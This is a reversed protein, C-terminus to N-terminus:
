SREYMQQIELVCLFDGVVVDGGHYELGGVVNEEVLTMYRQWKEDDGYACRYIMFGWEHHKTDIMSKMTRSFPQSSWNFSDGQDIFWELKSSSM